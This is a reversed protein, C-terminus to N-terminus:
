RARDPQASSSESAGLTWSIRHVAIPDQSICPAIMNDKMLTVSAMKSKPGAKLYTDLGADSVQDCQEHPHGENPSPVINDNMAVSAINSKADDQSYTVLDIDSVQNCQEIKHRENSTSVMNDKSPVRAM